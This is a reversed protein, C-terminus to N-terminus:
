NKEIKKVCYLYIGNEWDLSDRTQKRPPLFRYRFLTHAFFNVVMHYFGQNEEMGQLQPLKIRIAIYIGRARWAGHTIDTM